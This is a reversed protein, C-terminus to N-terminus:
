VNMNKGKKKRHTKRKEKILRGKKNVERENGAM